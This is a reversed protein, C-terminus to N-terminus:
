KAYANTGTVSISRPEPAQPMVAIRRAAMEYLKVADVVGGSRDQAAQVMAVVKDSETTPMDRNDCILGTLPRDWHSPHAHTVWESQPPSPRLNLAPDGPCAGESSM